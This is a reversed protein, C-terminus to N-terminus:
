IRKTDYCIREKRKQICSYCRQVPKLGHNVKWLDDSKPVYCLEGCDKCKFIRMSTNMDSIWRQMEELTAGINVTCTRGEAAGFPVYAPESTTHTGIYFGQELSLKLTYVQKFVTGKVRLEDLIIKAADIATRVSNIRDTVRLHFEEDPAAVMLDWFTNIRDFLRGLNDFQLQNLYSSEKVRALALRRRESEIEDLADELKDFIADRPYSVIDESNIERVNGETVVNVTLM